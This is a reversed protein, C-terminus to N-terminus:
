ASFSPRALGTARPGSSPKPPHLGKGADRLRHGRRSPSALIRRARSPPSHRRAAHHAVAHGRPEHGGAARDTTAVACTRSELAGGSGPHGPREVHVAGDERPAPAAPGFRGAAQDYVRGDAEPGEAFGLRPGARRVSTGPARVRGPPAGVRTCGRDGDTRLGASAGRRKGTPCASSGDREARTIHCNCVVM